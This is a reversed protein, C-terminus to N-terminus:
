EWPFEPAEPPEPPEPLDPVNEFAEAGFVIGDFTISFAMNRIDWGLVTFSSIMLVLGVAISITAAIFATKWKSNM